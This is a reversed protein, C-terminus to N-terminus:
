DIKIESLGMKKRRGQIHSIIEKAEEEGILNESYAIKAFETARILSFLKIGREGLKEEAGEQRDVIVLIYKVQGNNKEILDITETKRLATTTLDDIILVRDAKELSGQIAYKPVERYTEKMHCYFSPIGTKVSILTALGLSANPIGAIRQVSSPTESNSKGNEMINLQICKVLMESIEELYKPYAYITRFDFYYKSLSGDALQFDGMSFAKRGTAKNEVECYVHCLKKAFKIRLEEWKAENSEKTHTASM